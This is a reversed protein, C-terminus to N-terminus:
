VKGYYLRKLPSTRLLCVVYRGWIAFQGVCEDTYGHALKKEWVSKIPPVVEFGLECDTKKQENMEGESKNKVVRLHLMM